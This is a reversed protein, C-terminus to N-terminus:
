TQEGKQKRTTENLDIQLIKVQDLALHSLQMMYGIGFKRGNETMANLYEEILLLRNQQQDNM